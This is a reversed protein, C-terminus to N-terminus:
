GICYLVSTCSYVRGLVVNRLLFLHFFMYVMHLTIRNKKKIGVKKFVVTYVKRIDKDVFVCEIYIGKM